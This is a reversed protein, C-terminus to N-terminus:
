DWPKDEKEDILEDINCDCSLWESNKYTYCKARYPYKKIIGEIDGYFSEKEYWMKGSEGCGYFSKGDKCPSEDASIFSVYGHCGSEPCKWVINKSYMEEEDIPNFSFDLGCKDCPLMIFKKGKEKSEEIFNLTDNNPQIYKKCNNCQINM